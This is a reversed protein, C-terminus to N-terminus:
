CVTCVVAGVSGASVANVVEVNCDPSQLLFEVCKISKRYAALHLPTNVQRDCRTLGAVFTGLYLRQLSSAASALASVGNNAVNVFLGKEISLKLM